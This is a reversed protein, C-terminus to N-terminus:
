FKFAIGTLLIPYLQFHKLPENISTQESEISQQIESSGASMCGGQPTCVSGRLNLTASYPGTYAAGLELPVTWHRRGRAVMNSFGLTLMPMTTRTFRLNAGGTVPDSPDSLFSQDGLSFTSGGPVYVSASANSHFLLMGPSLHFGCRCPFLDLSVHGNKLHLQGEYNAGDVGLGYGFNFFTAGGRLNLWRLIPTAIQGGYGQTGAIASLAVHSFPRVPGDSSRKKLKPQPTLVVSESPALADLSSSEGTSAPDGEVLRTPAAITAASGRAASAAQTQVAQGCMGVVVVACWLHQKYSM